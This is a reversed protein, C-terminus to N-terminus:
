RRPIWFIFGKYTIAEYWNKYEESAQPEDRTVIAVKADPYLCANFNWYDIKNDEWLGKLAQIYWVSGSDVDEKFQDITYIVNPKEM